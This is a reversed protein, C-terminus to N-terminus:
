QLILEGRNNQLLLFIEMVSWGSAALGPEGTMRPMGNSAFEEQNRPAAPAGGIM